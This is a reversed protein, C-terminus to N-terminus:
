FHRDAHVQWLCAVDGHCQVHSFCAVSRNEAAGRPRTVPRDAVAGTVSLTDATGAVATVTGAPTLAVAIGAVVYGRM